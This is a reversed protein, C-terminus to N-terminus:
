GHDLGETVMTLGHCYQGPDSAHNVRSVHNDVLWPGFSPNGNDFWPLISRNSAHNVRSVHNDVLWPGFRRNGNDFWPM